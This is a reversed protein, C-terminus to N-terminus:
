DHFNVINKTDHVLGLQSRLLEFRPRALSKTFFDAMNEDTSIQKVDIVKDRITDRVFFLKTNIQRTGKHNTPDKAIVICAANDEFIITPSTLTIGLFQLYERLYIIDRTAECLALFEAMMTSLATITQRRSYWSITNGFVKIVVGTTSRAEEDSTAFSADVYSILPFKNAEILQRRLWRRGFSSEKVFVTVPSHYPNNKIFKLKLDITGKVYRLVHKIHKWLAKSPKSQFRSLLGIAYCLDPRSCLMAYMLSGIAPRCPYKENDTLLNSNTLEYIDIKTELPTSIPRCDQMRCKVLVQELYKSQSISISTPDREVQIGLFHSLPESDKMEFVLQLKQKLHNLRDQHKTILLIDDVYILIYFNDEFNKMKHYYVCYDSKSQEFGLSILYNHLKENWIRPSQKLGYIPRNLKCVKDGSFQVGDPVEMYIDESLEGHLFASTVDIQEILLDFQVALALFTRFSTMRAVPAFTENFDEGRKQSFGRAVLRARFRDIEGEKNRKVRFVYKCTIINKNKPRDVLTWTRNKKLANLEYEVAEYWDKSNSSNKIENYDNPLDDEENIFM